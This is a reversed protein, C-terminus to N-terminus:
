AAARPQIERRAPSKHQPADQSAVPKALFTRMGAVADLAQRYKARTVNQLMAVLASDRAGGLLDQAKQTMKLWDHWDGIVDQAPKLKGILLKAQPDHSDLAAIYRARKGVIRYAHLKKETLPGHDKALQALRDQALSFPVSDKTRDLQKAARALRQRLDKEVKHDCARALKKEGKLRQAVLSELLKTKDGNGGSIKLAALTAVQVDLDRIKGAKQRLGALRKLLKKDNSSPDCVVEGLVTEVRRSATRFKHVAEPSTSKRLQSLQRGLRSFTNRTRKLEIPM